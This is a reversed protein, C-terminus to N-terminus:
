TPWVREPASSARSSPGNRTVSERLYWTEKSLTRIRRSISQLGRDTGPRNSSLTGDEEEVRAEVWVLGSSPLARVDRKKSLSSIRESLDTLADDSLIEASALASEAVAPKPSPAPTGSQSPSRAFFLWSLAVCAAVGVPLLMRRLLLGPRRRLREEIRRRVDDPMAALPRERLAGDAARLTELTEACASCSSLHAEIRVRRNEDLEGSALLVLEDSYRECSQM